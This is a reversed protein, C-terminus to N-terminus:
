LPNLIGGNFPLVVTFISGEGEVSEVKIEGYHQDVINYSTFLGMGAKVRSDKKSFELNFLGSLKERPIGAGTDRIQIFVKGKEEFTRITIKGGRETTQAANTLLNLFVQNLEGPYCAIKPIEGFKREISTGPKLENRILLLANDIGEHIDVRAFGANDLRTFQIFGNVTGSIRESVTKFVSSNTKLVELLKLFKSDDRISNFNDDNEIREEIQILCQSTTDASSKLAGVPNNIEHAIGAALKGLGAMKESQVLESQTAKLESLTLELETNSERLEKVLRNSRSQEKQFASVFYTMTLFITISLMILNLSNDIVALNNPTPIVHRLASDDISVSHIILYLYGAFWLLAKKISQFMLSGLPALLAWILIGFGIRTALGGANFQFLVPILLMAFLFPYLLVNLRKTFLYVVTATGVVCFYLAPYLVGSDFGTLIMNRSAFFLGTLTTFFAIVVLSIKKRRESLSDMELVCM